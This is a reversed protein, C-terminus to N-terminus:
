QLPTRSECFKRIEAVIKAKVEAPVKQAAAPYVENYIEDLNKISSIEKGQSLMRHIIKKMEDFFGKDMLEKKLLDKVKQKEGSLVFDEYLKMGEQQAGANNTNSESMKFIAQQGSTQQKEFKPEM